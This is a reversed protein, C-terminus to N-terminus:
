FPIGKSPVAVPGLIQVFVWLGSCRFGWIWLRLHQSAGFGLGSVGRFGLGLCMM